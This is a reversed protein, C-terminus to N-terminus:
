GCSHIFSSLIIIKPHVLREVYGIAVYDCSGTSIIETNKEGGKGFMDQM